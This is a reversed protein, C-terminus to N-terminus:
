ADNVVPHAEVRCAYRGKLSESKGAHTFGCSCYPRGDCNARGRPVSGCDLDQPRLTGVESDEDGVVMSWCSGYDAPRNLLVAEEYAALNGIGVLSDAGYSFSLGVDDDEIDTHRSATDTRCADDSALKRPHRDHHQGNRSFVGIKERRERCPGGTVQQFALVRGLDGLDKAHNQRAFGGDGTREDLPENVLVLSSVPAVANTAAKGTVSTECIPFPINELQQIVSKPGGLDAPPEEHGIDGNTSM